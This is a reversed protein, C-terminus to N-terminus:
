TCPSSGRSEKQLDRSRQRIEQLSEEALLSRGGRVGKRHLQNVASPVIRVRQEPIFPHRCLYPEGM